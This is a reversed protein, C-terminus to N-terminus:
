SAGVGDSEIAVILAEIAQRSGLLVILHQSFKQGVLADIIPQSFTALSHLLTAFPKHLELMFIAPTRLGRQIIASAVKAILVQDVQRQDTEM